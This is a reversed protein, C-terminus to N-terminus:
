AEEQIDVNFHSKLQNEVIDLNGNHKRRKFRVEIESAGRKCLLTFGQDSELIIM